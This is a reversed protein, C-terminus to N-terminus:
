DDFGYVRIQYLLQFTNGGGIFVGDFLDIESPSHDALSTWM